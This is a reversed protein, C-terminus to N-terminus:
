LVADKGQLNFIKVKMQYLKMDTLMALLGLPLLKTSTVHTLPHTFTNHCACASHLLHIFLLAMCGIELCNRCDTKIRSFKMNQSTSSHMRILLKGVNLLFTHGGDESNFHLGLLYCAPLESGSSPPLVNRWFKSSSRDSYM